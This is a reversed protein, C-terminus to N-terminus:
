LEAREERRELFSRDFLFRNVLMSLPNDGKNLDDRLSATLRRIAVIIFLILFGQTVGTLGKSCWSAVPAIIFGLVMGLPLSLAMPHTLKPLEAERNTAEFSAPSRKEYYYRLAAGTAFPILSLLALYAGYLLSLAIIVGAGITNGKEGHCGPFPPWMQGAVAAVGSWAVITPSLGFGFGILMPIIGKSFDVAGALIAPSKGAKYWLATHLDSERSLDLNNAKALATAFPLSGFLYSGGLLVVEALM